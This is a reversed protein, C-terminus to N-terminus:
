SDVMIHRGNVTLVVVTLPIPVFENIQGAKALAEKTEDVSANRIFGPDHPKRWVGDYMATVEISGVKYKHFGPKPDPVAQQAFAPSIALRGTFGLAAAFATSTVFNRRSLALMSM